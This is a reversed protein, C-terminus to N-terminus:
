AGNGPVKERGSTRSHILLRVERSPAMKEMEFIRPPSGPQILTPESLVSADEVSYMREGPFFVLNWDPWPLDSQLVLPLLSTREAPDWPLVMVVKRNPCRIRIWEEVGHFEQQVTLEGPAIGSTEFKEASVGVPLLLSVEYPPPTSQSFQFSWRISGAQTLPPHIEVDVADLVQLGSAREVLSFQIPISVWVALAIGNQRAPRFRTAAVAQRAVEDLEPDLSHVVRTQVVQGSTDVYAHITAVGSIGRSRAQEPYYLKEGLAAYGGIPSPMVLATTEMPAQFFICAQLLLPLLGTWWIRNLHASM